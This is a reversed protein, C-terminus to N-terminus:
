SARVIRLLDTAKAREVLPRFEEIDRAHYGGPGIVCVRQEGRIVFGLQIETAEGRVEYNPFFRFREYKPTSDRQWAQFASLRPHAPCYLETRNKALFIDVCEPHECVTPWGYQPRQPGRPYTGGLFVPLAGTEHIGLRQSYPRTRQCSGCTSAFRPAKTECIVGCELCPISYSDPLRLRSSRDLM